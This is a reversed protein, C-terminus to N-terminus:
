IGAIRLLVLGAIWLVVVMWAIGDACGMELRHWQTRPHGPRYRRASLAVSVLDAHRLTGAMVPVVIRLM